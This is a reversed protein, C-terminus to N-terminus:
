VGVTLDEIMNGTEFVELKRYHGVLGGAVAPRAIRDHQSLTRPHDFVTPPRSERSVPSLAAHERTAKKRAPVRRPV